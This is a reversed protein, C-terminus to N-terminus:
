NHHQFYYPLDGSLVRSGAVSDVAKGLSTSETPFIGYYTTVRFDTTKSSSGNEFRIRFYRKGKIGTNSAFVNAVIPFGYSPTSDWNTNNDSYDYYLTGITDSKLTALIDPQSNLESIGIYVGIVVTTNSHSAGTSNFAGRTCGTLTSTSIGTYTIYESEIKVTGSTPFQSASALTISTVSSSITGNLTSSGGVNSTSSNNISKTCNYPSLVISM